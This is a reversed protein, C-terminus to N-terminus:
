VIEEIIKESIGILDDYNHVDFWKIRKDTNFWTIQRKAFRRSNRKILDVATKLNMEDNLYSILEKYGVTNLANLSKDFGKALISKVEDLLGESMMIDVRDNINQYLKKRDWRLGFQEFIFDGERKYNQQQEKITKGTLYYIELARIVRKYNQPLMNEASEPDVNKLQNYLYDNGYNEREKLFKERLQYDTDVTNFIGDILSKIYLGSGGAVIPIKDNKLLKEIIKLSENEFISVNFDEDPELVDLFHHRVKIRKEKSPKATGIDLYKYVQRSDASIIETNLKHALDLSLDTKGSCTTGVIVIVKGSKIPILKSREM